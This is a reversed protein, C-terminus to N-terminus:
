NISFLEKTVDPNETVGNFLQELNLKSDERDINEM